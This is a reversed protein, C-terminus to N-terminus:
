ELAAKSAAIQAIEATIKEQRLQNFTLTLAEKMDTAADTANKMAILRASSVSAQSELLAHYVLARILLPLASTLVASAHPEILYPPHHPSDPLTAPTIEAIIAQLENAVLPLIQRQRPTQVLTNVYDTYFIQVRQYHGAFFEESLLHYIAALDAATFRNELNTFSAIIPLGLKHALTEGKKGVVLAAHHPTIKPTTKTTAASSAVPSAAAAAAPTTLFRRLKKELNRHCSGCLGRKSAIMRHLTDYGPRPTLFPSNKVVDPELNQSISTLIQWTALTFPRSALTNKVARKMNSAAIMQMAKTLKGTATISKLRRKILVSM